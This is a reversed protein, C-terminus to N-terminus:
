NDLGESTKAIIDIVGSTTKTILGAAGQAGGKFFGIFGGDKAGEIPKTVLGKFGSSISSGASAFGKKM